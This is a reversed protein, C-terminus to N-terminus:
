KLTVETLLTFTISYFSYNLDVMVGTSCPSWMLGTFIIAINFTHLQNNCEQVEPAFGSRISNDNDICAKLLIPMLDTQTTNAKEGPRRQTQAQGFVHLIQNVPCEPGTLNGQRQM